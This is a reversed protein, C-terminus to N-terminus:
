KVILAIKKPVVNTTPVIKLKIMFDRSMINEEIKPDIKTPRANKNICANKNEVGGNTKKERNPCIM